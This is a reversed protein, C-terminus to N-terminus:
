DTAHPHRPASRIRKAVPSIRKQGVSLRPLGRINCGAKTLAPLTENKFSVAPPSDLDRVVVESTAEHEGIKAIIKTTGDGVPIVTTGKIRAIKPDSSTLTVDATLDRVRDSAYTGTAVLQLTCRPTSLEFKSPELTLKIPPQVAVKKVKAVTATKKGAKSAQDAASAPQDGLLALTALMVFVPATDRFCRGAPVRYTM